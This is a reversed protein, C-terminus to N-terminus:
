LINVTLSGGFPEVEAVAVVGEGFFGVRGFFAVERVDGFGVAFFDGVEVFGAASVDLDVVGEEGIKTCCAHELSHLFFSNIGVFDEIRVDFQVVITKLSVFLIHRNAQVQTTPVELATHM